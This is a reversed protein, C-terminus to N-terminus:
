RSESTVADTYRYFESQHFDEKPGGRELLPTVVGFDSVGGEFKLEILPGPFGQIGVGAHAVPRNTTSRAVKSGTAGYPHCQAAPAGKHALCSEIHGSVCGVSRM